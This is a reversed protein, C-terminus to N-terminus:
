KNKVAAEPPLIGTCTILNENPVHVPTYLYGYSCFFPESPNKVHMPM